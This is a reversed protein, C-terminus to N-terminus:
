SQRDDKKDIHAETEHSDLAVFPFEKSPAHECEMIMKIRQVIEPHQEALNNKEAIDKNLNYLEIKADPNKILNRRIGKWNDM